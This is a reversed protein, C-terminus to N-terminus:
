RVILSPSRQMECSELGSVELTRHPLSHFLADLSRSTFIYFVNTLLVKKQPPQTMTSSHVIHRPLQLESLGVTVPMVRMM